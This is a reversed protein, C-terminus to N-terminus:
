KCYRCLQEAQARPFYSHGICFGKGLSDDNAIVDNLDIIAKILQNFDENDLMEQYAKFGETTFGPTMEFFSFRRRLAYDMMALSRDATNMMGIIYLNKPVIFDEKNYPLTLKEGRYDKEILMMLEGLIKSLNGRNVEDIIFFYKSEPHQAAKKCFNYFVGRQLVFGGDQNPKYGMMFDEYTYSQHFQVVQVKNEDKKGLISYALRKASFTKGVGPAGQLIINKKELLLTRLDAYDNESLYVENLFNHETYIEYKKDQERPNENRILEEILDYEDTTLKYFTGLPNKLYQMNQLEDTAKLVSLDIGTEFGETKKFIITKGDNEREVIALAVIQLTPTSEYCIVIDGKKADLFNQYIRRKKGNDGYLTYEVTEGVNLSQMSWIKPNSVLWWYNRPTTESPQEDVPSPSQACVLNNLRKVFDPYKTIDTLTKQVISSRKYEWEGVYEWKVKRVNRYSKRSEDYNYAGEVVGRGIIKHAGKKAFVIDGPKLVHVFEWLALSDNMFSAEPKEYADQLAETVEEKTKFISINGVEDWGICMVGKERCYDWQDANVGPAYMWVKQTTDSVSDEEMKKQEDDANKKMVWLVTQVALLVPRNHYDKLVDAMTSQIEEGFYRAIEELLGLFHEYKNGVKKKDIKLIDCLYSYIEDKFFTYSDPMCCTLIAAATREDNACSKWGKPCLNRMSGKYAALREHLPVDEDVLANLCAEFEEKNNKELLKFVPNVRSSDILNVKPSQLLDIIELASKGDADDLLQWKYEEGQGNFPEMSHLEKYEDILKRFTLKQEDDFSLFISSLQECFSFVDKEGRVKQLYYQMDAITANDADSMDYHKVIKRLMDKQYYSVLQKNSYMFAIKWKVVDGFIQNNEIASFNGKAANEAIDCVADRVVIFAEEATAKEFRKYWAYVGDTQMKKLDVKPSRCAYIGFKNSTGGQIGGLWRLKIELWYCFSNKELNTYQPLTMDRLGELPFLELFDNYLKENGTM